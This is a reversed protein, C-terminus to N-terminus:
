ESHRTRGSSPSTRVTATGEPPTRSSGHNVPAAVIRHPRDTDTVEPGCSGSYGNANLRGSSTPSPTATTTTPQDPYRSM